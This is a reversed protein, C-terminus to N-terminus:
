VVQLNLSNTAKNRLVEEETLPLCRPVTSQEEAFVQMLYLLRRHDDRSKSGDLNYETNEETQNNKQVPTKSLEPVSLPVPDVPVLPDAAGERWRHDRQRFGDCKRRRWMGAKMRLVGRLESPEATYLCVGYVRIRARPGGRAIDSAPAAHWARRRREWSVGLRSSSRLSPGHAERPGPTWFGGMRVCRLM